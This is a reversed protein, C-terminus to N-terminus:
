PSHLQDCLERVHRTVESASEARRPAPGDALALETGLLRQGKARMRAAGAGPCGNGPEIQASAANVWADWTQETGPHHSSTRDGGVPCMHTPAATDSRRTRSPLRRASSYHVSASGNILAYTCGPCSCEWSVPVLIM